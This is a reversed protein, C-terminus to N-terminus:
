MFKHSSLYIRTVGSQDIFSMQADGGFSLQHNMPAWKPVPIFSEYFWSFREIALSLSRHNFTTGCSASMVQIYVVPPRLDCGISIHPWPIQFTSGLLQPGIAQYITWWRHLWRDLEPGWEAMSWELSVCHSLSYFQWALGGGSQSTTRM